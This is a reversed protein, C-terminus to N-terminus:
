GLDVDIRFRDYGEVSPQEFVVHGRAKRWEGTGGVIPLEIPEAAELADVDMLGAVHIQGRDFDEGGPFVLSLQCMLTRYDNPALRTRRLARLHVRGAGRGGQAGERRLDPRAVAAPRGTAPAAAGSRRAVYDADAYLSSEIILQDGSGTGVPLPQPPGPGGFVLLPREDVIALRDAVEYVTFKKGHPPSQSGIAPVVAVLLAVLGLLGGAM